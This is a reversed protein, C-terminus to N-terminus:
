AADSERESQWPYWPRRARKLRRKEIRKERKPHHGRLRYMELAIAAAMVCDDHCNAQARPSPTGEEFECFTLCESLLNSPLYPLAQERIAKELQNLVLPRTRTNMPYGFPKSVPLDPRSSMVHRYLKPYAPRGGRGDRLAAIVPEGFGGASEVAVLATNYRRGLFHLQEAYLDADVKARLEAVLEMDSLDVVYAVSYDLGRGTAVDAGIAYARSDDPEAFVRVHGLDHKRLSAKDGFGKPEFDCRYLPVPALERYHDLASTDFFCSGSLFLWEGELYRRRQLEKMGALEREVYGDPLFPNDTAKAIFFESDGISAADDELRLESKYFGHETQDADKLFVQYLWHGPNEPNFGCLVQRPMNPKQRLRSQLLIMADMDIEHAEDLIVLGLESSNWKVPDDLGAFHIVSGNPFEIFDEGGSKIIRCLKGLEPPLTERFFAKRTTKAIATHENRAIVVEIGPFELAADLAYECLTRTKGGGMAGGYGKFKAKSRYFAAQAPIATPDYSTAVRLSRM